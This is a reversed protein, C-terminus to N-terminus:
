VFAFSGAGFRKAFMVPSPTDWFQVYCGGRAAGPPSKEMSQTETKRESGSQTDGRCLVFLWGDGKNVTEGELWM